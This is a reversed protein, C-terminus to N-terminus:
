MVHRFPAHIHDVMFHIYYCQMCLSPHYLDLMFSLFIFVKLLALRDELLYNTFCALCLWYVRPLCRCVDVVVLCALSSWLFSFFLPFSVYRLLLSPPSPHPEFAPSSYPSHLLSLLLSTTPPSHSPLFLCFPRSNIFIPFKM